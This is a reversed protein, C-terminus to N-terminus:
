TPTPCSAPTTHFEAGELLTVLYRRRKSDVILVLEGARLLGIM